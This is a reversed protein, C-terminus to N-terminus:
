EERRKHNNIWNIIENVKIQLDIVDDFSMNEPYKNAPAYEIKEIKKGCKGCTCNQLQNNNDYYSSCKYPETPKDDIPTAGLLRLSQRSFRYDDDGVRGRYENDQGNEPTYYFIVDGLKYKM